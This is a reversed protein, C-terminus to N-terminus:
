AHSLHKQSKVIDQAHRPCIKPMDQAYRPCIKIMDQAYRQGIKPMHKAYRPCINSIDQPYRLCSETMNRVHRPSIKPMDKANRLCIKPMDQCMKPMDQSYRPCIKPTDSAYRIADGLANLTNIKELAPRQSTARSLFNSFTIKIKASLVLYNEQITKNVQVFSKLSVKASIIPHISHQFPSAPQAAAVKFQCCTM